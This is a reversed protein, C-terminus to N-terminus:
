IPSMINGQMAQLSIETEYIGKVVQTFDVNAVMITLKNAPSAYERLEEMIMAATEIM